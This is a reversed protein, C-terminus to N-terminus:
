RSRGGTVRNERLSPAIGSWLRGRRRPFLTPQTRTCFIHQMHELLLDSTIPPTCWGFGRRHLPSNLFVFVGLVRVGLDTVRREVRVVGDLRRLICRLGTSILLVTPLGSWFLSMEDWSGFMM